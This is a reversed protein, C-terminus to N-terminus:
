NKLFDIYDIYNLVNELISLYHKFTQNVFLLSNRQQPLKSFLSVNKMKLIKKSRLYIQEYIM